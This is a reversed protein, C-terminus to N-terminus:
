FSACVPLLNWRSSPLPQHLSHYILVPTSTCPRPPAVTALRQPQTTVVVTFVRPRSKGPSSGRVRPGAMQLRVRLQACACLRTILPAGLDLDPDPAPHSPPFASVTSVASTSSIRLVPPRAGGGTRAGNEQHPWRRVKQTPGLLVVPRVTERPLQSTTLVGGSFAASAQLAEKNLIAGCFFM